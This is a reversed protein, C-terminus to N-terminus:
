KSSGNQDADEPVFRGYGRVELFWGVQVTNPSTTVDYVHELAYPMRYEFTAGARIKLLDQLTADFALGARGLVTDSATVPITRGSDLVNPLYVGSAVDEWSRYGVGMWLDVAYTGTDPDDSATIEVGTDAVLTSAPQLPLATAWVHGSEDVIDITLKSEKVWEARLWPSSVGRTTSFAAALKMATGGPSPGRKGGADNATWLNRGHSPTRIAFDLRSTARQAAGYRESFPAAAVGIWLGDVGGARLEPTDAVPEGSLYSGSGTLPEVVMTRSEPYRFVYSPTTQLDLTLALGEAPSIEAQFDLDHRTIRRQSVLLGQETLGGTIMSGGYALGGAMGLPPALDTVDAAGATAVVWLGIVGAEV